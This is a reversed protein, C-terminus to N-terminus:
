GSVNDARPTLEAWLARLNRRAPDRDTRLDYLEKFILGTEDVRRWAVAADFFLGDRVILLGIPSSLRVAASVRVRAGKLSLDRIVCDASMLGDGVIIKGSLLTRARLDGRRESVKRPQQEAGESPPSPPASSKQLSRVAEYADM